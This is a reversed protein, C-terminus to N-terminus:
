QRHSFDQHITNNDGNVTNNGSNIIQNSQTQSNDIENNNSVDGTDKVNQNNNGGQNDNGSTNGDGVQNDDGIVNNNGPTITNNDGPTITNNDGPTSINPNAVPKDQKYYDKRHKEHQGFYHHHAEGFQEKTFQNMDTNEKGYYKNMKDVWRQEMGDVDKQGKRDYLKNYQSDAASILGEGQGDQHWVSLDKHNDVYAGWDKEKASQARQKAEQHNNM